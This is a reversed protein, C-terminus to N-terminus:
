RNVSPHERADNEEWPAITLIQRPDGGRNQVIASLRFIQNEAIPNWAFIEQADEQVLRQVFIKLNAYLDESSENGLQFGEGLERLRLFLDAGLRLREYSGNWYRYQLFVHRHLRELGQVAAPLDAEISFSTLPKKVWFATETPTRPTLALPVANQCELAQPPLHELRSIGRCLSQCVRARSDADMLPLNRFEDLYRGGALDLAQADGAVQQIHESTWEFYARRRASKLSLTSYRPASDSTDAVPRTRLYRDIQPHAELAPDFWPLERLVEGQRGPTDAGFARDWYPPCEEESLPKRHYDDCYHIGFLIYVLAARLERITIHVEGRLHVAQLAKFLQQRAHGRASKKEGPFSPPGFYQGAEFVRCKEKATCSLCVKWIEGAQEGGYLRDVLRDMFETTIGSGDNSIDGVLSRHNLHILRIYSNESTPPEGDLLMQLQRVLATDEEGSRRERVSGIWELLRGDNIALLHVVGDHPPGDHFPGLFQDLIEDSSRGQWAASGDLNIRVYLGDTLRGEIVREASAHKGLGLSDALHQLLATKGDGANGCLIILQARRHQIDQLLSAELKTEIYTKDAFDSDLGRTEQNGWASGPYSQLLHLLWDVKQERPQLGLVGLDERAQEIDQVTIDKKEEGLDELFKIAETASPFRRDPNPDTARDLFSQLHPFDTTDIGEWNLGKTKERCGQRLFPERGFIVHFFSAALAYLDDSPSGPSGCEQLSPSSYQITGASAPPEGIKRVCDYDTLVISSGCVILNRPSVDGHVLGARHLVDLADCIERIWRIALAEASTEGLEEALLPFVEVYESLPTGEIWSMVAIFQNDRWEKAVEFVASLGRHRASYPKVREYADRVRQGLDPDDYVVKAVYTGSDEKTTANIHMVKFATGTSGSGLRTIIRYQNDRFTIIQDETWFRAPPPSSDPVPEGILALLSDRIENLSSREEPVEALGHDLAQTAQQCQKTGDAEFLRKLTACLSYIDSRVDAAALGARRVEPAAYAAHAADVGMASSGISGASPIRSREFGSLIPTSDFKVLLTQPTLNRHVIPGEEPLAQHLEIVAKIAEIAFRIRDSIKWNRDAVRDQLTPADPDAMTFFFMEEAYGPVERWSDMIRPAWKYRQLLWLADFERRARAQADKEDTASLDYLHLIVRDRREPHKGKYVRHFREDKPSLLNLDVYGALRRRPLSGDLVVGSEPKLVRAIKDVDIASLTAPSEIRVLDPIDKLTFFRVGRKASPPLNKLKSPEQTLLFVGDVYPLDPVYKRLTTGIRRAKADLCEIERGIAETNKAMWQATWHKVEIVRVGPPGIVVIDIENSPLSHTDLSFM